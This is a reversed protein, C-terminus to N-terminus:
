RRLRHRAVLARQGVYRCPYVEGENSAQDQLNKKLRGPMACRREGYACRETVANGDDCKEGADTDIRGDGCYSTAGAARRCLADCISCAM